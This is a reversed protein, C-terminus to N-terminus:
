KGAAQAYFEIAKDLLKQEIKSQAAYYTTFSKINGRVLHDLNYALGWEDYIDAFDSTRGSVILDIMGISEEDRVGKVALANEYMVPRITKYGEAVMAELIIGTYELDNNTIPVGILSSHANAHSYYKEQETNYKPLPVIGYDADMSRLASNIASSLTAIYFLTNRNTFIDEPVSDVVYTYNLGKSMYYVKEAINVMKESNIVLQPVGDADRETTPQDSAYQYLSSFGAYSVYANQDSEFSYTGDGNLDAGGKEVLLTLEDITWEGNAVMGYLDTGPSTNELLGKNFYIAGLDTINDIDLCGQIAFIRGYANYNKIMDTAWWVKDFDLYEADTLDALYGSVVMSGLYRFHVTAADCIKDVALISDVLKQPMADSDTLPSRITINFREEILRNRTYVATEIVDGSNEEAYLGKSHSPCCERTLFQFSSGAFDKEPLNDSIMEAETEAAATDGATSEATKEPTDGSCATFFVMLLFLLVSIFRKM